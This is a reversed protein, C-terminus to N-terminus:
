IRCPMVVAQFAESVIHIPDCEGGLRIVVLSGPCCQLADLLYGANVGLELKRPGGTDADWVDEAASTSLSVTGDGISMKARQAGGSDATIVAKVATLAHERSCAIEFTCLKPVVQEWPPFAESPQIWTLDGVTVRSRSVTWDQEDADLIKAVRTPISCTFGVDIAHAHIRHGDTAVVHHRDVRVQAMHPRTEDKSVAPLVCKLPLTVGHYTRAKDEDKPLSPFDAAESVQVTVKRHGSSIVLSGDKRVVSVESCDGFARLKALMEVPNVLCPGGISELETDIVAQLNTGILRNAEWRACKIQFLPSKQDVVQGVREFARLLAQKEM